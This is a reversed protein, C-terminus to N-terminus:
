IIKTMFDRIINRFKKKTTECVKIILMKNLCNNVNITKKIENLYNFMFDFFRFTQQVNVNIIRFM